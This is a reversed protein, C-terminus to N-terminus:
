RKVTDSYKKLNLKGGRAKELRKEDNSLNLGGDNEIPTKDGGKSDIAGNIPVGSEYIEIISPM